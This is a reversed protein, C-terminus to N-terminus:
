SSGTQQIIADNAMKTPEIVLTRNGIEVTATADGTTTQDLMAWVRIVHDGSGANLRLWNFAHASKTRIFDEETDQGDLPNEADTVTRQYARNCMTVSDAAATGPAPPNQPPTSFSEIPVVLGDITIWAKVTGTANATATTSSTKLKTFISCEMSLQLILDTTKATHLNATLIEVALDPGTEVHRSAAATAKNAPMGTGSAIGGGASGIVLGVALAIAAVATNRRTFYARKM